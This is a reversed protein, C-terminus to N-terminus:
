ASIDLAISGDGLSILEDTQHVLAALKIIDASVM